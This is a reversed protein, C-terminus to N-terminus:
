KEIPEFYFPLERDNFLILPPVDVLKSLQILCREYNENFEPIESKFTFTHAIWGEMEIYEKSNPHSKWDPKIYKDIIYHAHKVFQLMRKGHEGEYQIDRLFSYDAYM